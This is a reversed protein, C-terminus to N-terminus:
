GSLRALCSEILELRRQEQQEQPAVPRALTEGDFMYLVSFLLVERVDEPFTAMGPVLLAAAYLDNRYTDIIPRLRERLEADTRAAVLLECWVENVSDRSADRVLRLASTLTAERPDLRTFRDTFGSIQRRGVEAAATVVLDLRTDFHRFMGGHSLGARGCIEQVSTKAYGVDAIAAITAAVLKGVTAERRERQTRRPPQQPTV